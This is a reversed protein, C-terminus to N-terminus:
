AEEWPTVLRVSPQQGEGDIRAWERADAEDACPTPEQGDYILAWEEEAEIPVLAIEDLMEADTFPQESGTERWLEDRGKVTVVTPGRHRAPPLTVTGVPLAEAQEASEILRPVYIISM